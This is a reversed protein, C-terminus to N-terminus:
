EDAVENNLFVTRVRGGFFHLLGCLYGGIKVSQAATRFTRILIFM